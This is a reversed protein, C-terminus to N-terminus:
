GHPDLGMRALVDVDVILAPKLKREAKLTPTLSDSFFGKILATKQAHEPGALGSRM